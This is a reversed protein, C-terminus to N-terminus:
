FKVLEQVLQFRIGPVDTLISQKGILFIHPYRYVKWGADIYESVKECFARDTGGSVLRTQLSRRCTLGEQVPVRKPDIVLQLFLTQYNMREGSYSLHVAEKVTLEGYTQYGDQLAENVREGLVEPDYGTLARYPLKYENTPDNM